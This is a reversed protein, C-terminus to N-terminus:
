SKPAATWQDVEAQTLNGLPRVRADQYGWERIDIEYQDWVLMTGRCIHKDPERRIRDADILHELVRRPIREREGPYVYRFMMLHALLMEESGRFHSLLREWDLDDARARLLHNIDAGDFRERACVFSKSWIVEEAACLPAPRGLVHGAVARDFWNNDVECLGNASRFIFDVFADHEDCFAKGLWHPHTKEARYGANEFAELARDLDSRKIFCDLDKTHRVIGTHYALSYAGAVVYRVGAAELLDLAQLYFAKTGADLHGAPDLALDTSDGPQRTTNM